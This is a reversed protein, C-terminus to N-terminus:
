VGGGADVADLKEQGADRPLGRLRVPVHFDTLEGQERGLPSLPLAEAVGHVEEL